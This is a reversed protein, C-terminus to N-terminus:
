AVPRCEPPSWRVVGRGVLRQSEEARSWKSRIIECQARIEEPSPDVTPRKREHKRSPLGYRRRVEWLRSLPIGLRESLEKNEVSTDGWLSFLLPVDISKKM